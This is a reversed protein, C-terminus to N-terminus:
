PQKSLNVYDPHNLCCDQTGNCNWLSATHFAPTPLAMAGKMSVVETGTQQGTGSYRPKLHDSCNTGMRWPM